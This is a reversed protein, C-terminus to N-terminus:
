RKPIQKIEMKLKIVEDAGIRLPILWFEFCFGMVMACQKINDSHIHCEQWYENYKNGEM